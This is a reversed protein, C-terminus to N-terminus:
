TQCQIDCSGGFSNCTNAVSNAPRNAAGIDCAVTLLLVKHAVAFQSLSLCLSERLSSVHLLLALVSAPWCTHLLASLLVKLRMHALAACRLRAHSDFLGCRNCTVDCVGTWAAGCQNNPDSNSLSLVCVSPHARLSQLLGRRFFILGALFLCACHSQFSGVLFLSLRQQFCPSFTSQKSFPPVPPRLSRATNPFFCLYDSDPNGTPRRM